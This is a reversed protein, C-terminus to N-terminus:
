FELGLFDTYSAFWYGLVGVLGARVVLRREPLAEDRRTRERVALVGVVLYFPMALAMRLALLTEADVGEAYALKIGVGKTSFLVAGAAALLYGATLTPAPATVLGPGAPLTKATSDSRPPMRAESRVFGLLSDRHRRLVP